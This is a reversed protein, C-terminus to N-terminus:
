TLPTTWELREWEMLSLGTTPEMINLSYDFPQVFKFFANFSFEFFMSSPATSRGEAKASSGYMSSRFCTVPAMPAVVGESRQNQRDM